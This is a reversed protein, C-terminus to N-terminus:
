DLKLGAQSWNINIETTTEYKQRSCKIIALHRSVTLTSGDTCRCLAGCSIFHLYFMVQKCLESISYPRLYCYENM